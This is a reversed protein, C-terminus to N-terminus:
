SYLPLCFLVQESFFPLYVGHACGGGGDGRLDSFEHFKALQGFFQLVLHFDDGVLDFGIHAFLFGHHGTGVLDSPFLGDAAANVSGRELLEELKPRDEESFALVMSGNQRFPFDLKESLEKILKSGRVNMRAKMSGPKADYGAHVIGSNAKSTGECVDSEKEIVCIKIDYRSLERAIASGSVGAGIVIVDYM